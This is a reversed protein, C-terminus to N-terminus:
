FKGYVLYKKFYVIKIWKKEIRVVKLPQKWRFNNNRIATFNPNGMIYNPQCVVHRGDGGKHSLLIDFLTQLYTENELTSPIYRRLDLDKCLDAFWEKKSTDEYADIAPVWV